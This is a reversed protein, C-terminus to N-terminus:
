VCESQVRCRVNRRARRCVFTIVRQYLATSRHDLLCRGAVVVNGESPWWFTSTFAAKTSRCPPTAGPEPPQKYLGLLPGRPNPLPLLSLLPRQVGAPKVKPTLLTHVGAPPLTFAVAYVTRHIMFRDCSLSVTCHQLSTLSSTPKREMFILHSLQPTFLVSISKRERQLTFLFILLLEQFNEADERQVPSSNLSKKRLKDLRKDRDTAPSKNEKPSKSYLSLRIEIVFICRWTWM